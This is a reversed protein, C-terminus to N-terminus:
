LNNAILQQLEYCVEQKTHIGRPDVLSRVFKAVDSASRWILSQLIQGRQAETFDRDRSVEASLWEESPTFNMRDLVSIKREEPLDELLAVAITERRDTSLEPSMMAAIMQDTSIEVDVTKKITCM